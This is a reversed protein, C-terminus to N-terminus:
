PRSDQYECRIVQNTAGRDVAGGSVDSVCRVFRCEQIMGRSGMMIIGAGSKGRCNVFQCQEIVGSQCYIGGDQCYNFVCQTIKPSSANYIARGGKMNYFLSDRAELHSNSAFIGGHMGMGDLRSSCIVCGKAYDLVVLDKAELESGILTSDRIELRGKCRIQRKLYVIAHHIKLCGASAVDVPCDIITPGQIYYEGMVDLGSPSSLYQITEEKEPFCEQYTMGSVKGAIEGKYFVAAGYESAYCKEFCCDRIELSDLGLVAGGKRAECHRFRCNQIRARGGRLMVAGGDEPSYCHHFYCSHIELREGWFRIAAGRTTQYIESDRILVRGDQARIFMGQNRCDIDSHIVRVMGANRINVCARHSGSKRIVRSNEITLQGGELAINGYIRVVAHDFILHMGSRLVLDERIECRDLLRVERKQELYEQTCTFSEYLTMLYYKLDIRSIGLGEQEMQHFCSRCRVDDEERAAQVFGRLITMYRDPIVLMRTFLRILETEQRSIEGDRGSVNYLDLMLIYKKYDSGISSYLYDMLEAENRSLQIAKAIQEESLEMGRRLLRDLEFNQEIIVEPNIRAQMLVASCYYVKFEESELFLPHKPTLWARKKHYLKTQNGIIRAEGM